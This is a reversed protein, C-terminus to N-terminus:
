ILFLKFLILALLGPSGLFYIISLTIANFPIVLNFNLAILNYSYLVVSCLIFRKFLCVVINM